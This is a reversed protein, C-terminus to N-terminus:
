LFDGFNRKGFNDFKRDAEVERRKPKEKDRQQEQHERWFQAVKSEPFETIGTEFNVMPTAEQDDKFAKVLEHKEQNSLDPSDKVVEDYYDQGSMESIRDVKEEFSEGEYAEVKTIDTKLQNLKGQAESVKSQARTLEAKLNSKELEAQELLSKLKAIEAKLDAVEQVSTSAAANSDQIIQQQNPMQPQAIQTPDPQPQSMQQMIMAMMQNQQNMMQMMLAMINNDM